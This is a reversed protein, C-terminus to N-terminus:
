KSFREDLIRRVKEERRLSTRSRPVEKTVDVKKNKLLSEIRTAELSSTM